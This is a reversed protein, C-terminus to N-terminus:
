SVDLDFPVFTEKGGLNVQAWVVYHGARPITLKFNLVLQEGSPPRSLNTEAPHLHAFGSRAQDFAVLHAFADMVPQLEISGGDPRVIAFRL